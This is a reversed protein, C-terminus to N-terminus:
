SRSFTPWRRGTRSGSSWRMTCRRAATSSICLAGCGAPITDPLDLKYDTATVTVPAPAADASATAPTSAPSAAEAAPRDSKCGVLLAALVCLPAPLRHVLM